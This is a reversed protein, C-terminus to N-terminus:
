LPVQDLNRAEAPTAAEAKILDAENKCMVLFPM